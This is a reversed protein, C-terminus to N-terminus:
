SANIKSRIFKLSEYTRNFDQTQEFFCFILAEIFTAKIERGMKNSKNWNVFSDLNLADFCQAWFENNSNEKRFNDIEEPNSKINHYSDLWDILKDGVIAYVHILENSEKCEIIINILKDNLKINFKENIFEKLKENNNM